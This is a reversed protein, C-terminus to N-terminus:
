QNTNRDLPYVNESVAQGIKVHHQQEQWVEILVKYSTESVGLTQYAIETLAPIIRDFCGTADNDMIEGDLKM